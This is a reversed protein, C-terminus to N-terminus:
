HQFTVSINYLSCTCFKSKMYIHCYIDKKSWLGPYEYHGSFPNSLTSSVYKVGINYSDNLLFTCICTELNYRIVHKRIYKCIKFYKKYFFIIAYLKLFALLLANEQWNKKEINFIFKRSPASM